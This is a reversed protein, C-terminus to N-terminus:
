NLYLFCNWQEIILSQDVMVMQQNGFVIFGQIGIMIELSILNMKKDRLSQNVINFM